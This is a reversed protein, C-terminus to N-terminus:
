LGNMSKKEKQWILKRRKMIRVPLIVTSIVGAITLYYNGEIIGNPQTNIFKYKQAVSGNPSYVQINTGNTTYGGAIDLYNGSAASIIYYYGNGANRLIWKQRDSGVYQNQVVNAGNGWGTAELAKGSNVNFIAYYGSGIKSIIFKQANSNNKNYLHVNGKNALIGFGIRDKIPM